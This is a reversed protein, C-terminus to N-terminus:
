TDPKVQRIGIKWLDISSYSNRHLLHSLQFHHTATQGPFVSGESLPHHQQKKRRHSPHCSFTDALKNDEDQVFHFFPTMIGSVQVRLLSQWNLDPKYPWITSSILACLLLWQKFVRQSHQCDGPTREVITSYNRKLNGDLFPFTANKESFAHGECVAKIEKIM